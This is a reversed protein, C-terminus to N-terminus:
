EATANSKENSKDKNISSLLKQMKREVRSYEVLENAIYIFAVNLKKGALDPIFSRNLRYAERIRRRMLVRGVAKRIRKKPISIFFQVPAGYQRDSETYVMRLPYAITSSGSMFLRDIAIRSCLKESKDLGFEPM